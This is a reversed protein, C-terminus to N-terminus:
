FDGAALARSVTGFEERVRTALEGCLLTRQSAAAQELDACWGALRVAGIMASSGKMNHAIRKIDDHRDAALADGLRILTDEGHSVFSEVLSAWSGPIEEMLERTRRVTETDFLPRHADLSPGQAAPREAAQVLAPERVAQHPLWRALVAILPDELVPKSLHDDMGSALSRERDENLAAATMAVIPLRDSTYGLERLTRTAEYGDMGPMQCDMFVLDYKVRAIQEIAEAGGPVVDVTCGAHRLMASAIERNVQNDDVVLVHGSMTRTVLSARKARPATAPQLAIALEFTSGAPSSHLLRLTGDMLQALNRAIPLGLGTGGFRRTTSSEAQAFAEFITAHKDAPIGIGTDEVVFRLPIAGDPRAAESEVRLYIHGDKTFKVANGVLNVLIQRLRTPDGFVAGPLSEGPLVALEVAPSAQARVTGLVDDLLQALDFPTHEIVLRGAEIKSFDLADNTVSLLIDASRLATQLQLRQEETIGTKLLLNLMGIVGNLPTRIEHSMVALFESRARATGEAQDKAQRLAQEARRRDSIDRVFASFAPGSKRPHGGPTASSQQWPHLVAISVEVPFQTGDRRLAELEIRQNLVRGSGSALYREMGRRHAERYSEPIITDSLSRGIVEEVTWGFIREAQPNWDLILGREDIAIVADLATDIVDRMQRESARLAATAEVREMFEGVQSGLSGFMNLLERDPQRIDRSFFQVIGVVGSRRIIPVSFSTHLGAARALPKRVFQEHELVDTIWLAEGREWVVGPIGSGREFSMGRSEREFEAAAVGRRAWTAALHLRADRPDGLWVEGLDWDLLQGFTELVAPLADEVTKAGALARSLSAQAESRREARERARRAAAQAEKRETVDLSIGWIRVPKGEANRTVAGVHGVWRTRGDPLPVRHELEPLRDGKMGERMGALAGVQDEPHMLSLFAEFSPEMSGPEVGLMRFNEDSWFAKGTVLDVEWVGAHLADLTRALRNASERHALEATMQETVDFTIGSLGIATGDADRVVSGTGRMWRISGDPRIVRHTGELPGEGAIARRMTEENQARDDPHILALFAEASPEISGPELGLLRFNEDSWFTKGTRLDIDFIGANLQKVTQALRVEAAWLRAHNAQPSVDTRVLGSVSSEPRSSTGVLPEDSRTLTM